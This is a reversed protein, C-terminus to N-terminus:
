YNSTHKSYYLCLKPREVLLCFFGQGAPEIIDQFDEGSDVLGLVELIIPDRRHFVYGAVLPVFQRDVPPLLLSPVNLYLPLVSLQPQRPPRCLLHPPQVGSVSPILSGM